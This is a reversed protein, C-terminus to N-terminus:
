QGSLSRAIEANKAQSIPDSGLLAPNPPANRAPAPSSQPTAPAPMSGIVPAAPAARRTQPEITEFPMNPNFAPAAPASGRFDQPILEQRNLGREISKLERTPLRKITRAQTRGERLVAKVREDSIGLPDFQGRMIRNIQKRGLQAVDILQQRIQRDSMGLRRATEVLDYLQAQGRMLQSNARQYAEIVDQETTDNANAAQAFVSTADRLAQNYEFGKYSFTEPLRAQMPRLGTVLAAGEEYIDYPQGTASSTGTLARTVRGRVWQGRKEQVFLEAAGPIYAGAVHTFGKSLREGFPTNETFVLSGTPTRGGRVTVDALREGVLSEGAFPEFLKGLGAAAASRLQEVEGAGLEGKESYLQLAARAPALAFDYPMMYSLDIYEVNPDGAPTLPVLQHGKMYDAATKNLDDISPKGEEDWGLTRAAAAQIGTPVAIASAMYGSLRQAGIARIQRELKSAAEQGIRNVLDDGARFSMERLGQDLINSTNRIVEAPFAVFNGVVPVRRVMKVAEPVRNYTPQTNKVIDGALTDLYGATGTLESTRTGIGSKVLADGIQDLADPALGARRFANAYKAREANWNVLKWFTDSNAYLKELSNAFPIRDKLWTVKDQAKGAFGLNSGEKLLNRFEQVTINQDRLGLNGTLEFLRRFEDDALNAAKGATLRFSDGFPMGRMMNGNAMTLFTGSIFNRVQTLPSYVTKAAQAAGKAQLSLALAENLFGQTMQQPTTLASYIEPAVYAGSLQGYSGGFVTDSRPEGLKKYGRSKVLEEGISDADSGYVILPIAKGQSQNIMQLAERGSKGYQRLTQDYLRNGAIVRSMDEVTRLYAQKPDKIEGLLERLGPSKSLLKSREQLLGEAITYLPKGGIQKRGEAVKGSRLSLLADDTLGTDIADLGILRKVEQEADARVVDLPRVELLDGKRVRARDMSEFVTQVEDVARKFTPSTTVGADLTWTEPNEFKQYLRRIYGGMNEQFTNLIQQKMAPELSSNAVSDAIQTSMRSIQDRMQAAPKTIERGYDSLADDTGQLFLFLDDYLKDYGARGKGRLVNKMKPFLNRAAQDFEILSNKAEREATDVFAEASERGYFLDEPTLGKSTFYKKLTESQGLKNGLVEMGRLVTGAATPVSPIASIGQATLRAAPFLAEFAAGMASGETGVRIKNRLRRFGEDRGTLGTDQETELFDPLADFADAMTGMGDPSVIFDSVGAALTTTGALRARSGVLARGTGSRGFADAARSLRGGRVIAQAGKAAQGARGLWGAVPIFALGFNTIGEAAKGATTEPDLGMADKAGVFFDTTARSTDTDFLADIGLAGLEAIGQGIDVVGAGIGRAIDSATTRDSEEDQVVQFPQNPDFGTPQNQEPTVVQFPQTPDFDAM